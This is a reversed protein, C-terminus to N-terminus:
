TATCLVEVTVQQKTNTYFKTERTLPLVSQPNKLVPRQPSHKSGARFLRDVPLFGCNMVSNPRDCRWPSQLWVGAVRVFVFGVAQSWVGALRLSRWVGGYGWKCKKGGSDGGDSILKMKKRMACVACECLWAHRVNAIINLLLNM